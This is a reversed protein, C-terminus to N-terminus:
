EAISEASPEEAPIPPSKLLTMLLMLNDLANLPVAAWESGSQDHLRLAGGTLTHHDYESWPLHADAYNIGSQSMSLNGFLISKGQRLDAEVLPLRADTIKRELLLGLKSVDKYIGNVQLVELQDTHLTYTIVDRRFLGFYAVREAKQQIHTIDAFRFYAMQSGRRYTFGREYVIVERNWLHLVYWGVLLAILAYLMPILISDVNAFIVQLLLVPIAYFIAGRILLRLRYSPFYAVFAGLIPDDEFIPTATTDTTM